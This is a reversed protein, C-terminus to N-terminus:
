SSAVARRRIARKGVRSASASARGSSGMPSRASIVSSSREATSAAPLPVPPLSAAIRASSLLFYPGSARGARAGHALRFSRFIRANTARRPGESRKVGRPRARLTVRRPSAWKTRCDGRFLGHEDGFEVGLGEGVEAEEDGVGAALAGLVDRGALQGREDGRGLLFFPQAGAWERERDELVCGSRAGGGDHDAFAFREGALGQDRAGITDGGRQEGRPKPAAVDDGDGRPARDLRHDREQAHQERPARRQQDLRAIRDEGQAARDRPRACTEDDARAGDIPERQRQDGGAGRSRGAEHARVDTEVLRRTEAGRGRAVHPETVPGEARAGHPEETAVPEPGPLDHEPARGEGGRPIHATHERGERQARLHGHGDGVVAHIQERARGVRPDGHGVQTGAGHGRPSLRALGERGREVGHEGHALGERARDGRRKSRAAVRQELHEMNRRARTDLHEHVDGVRVFRLIREGEPAGRRESGVHEVLLKAGKRHTDRALQAHAAVAESQGPGAGVRLAPHRAREFLAGREIAGALEHAEAVVALHREDAGGVAGHPHRPPADAAFLDLRRQEGVRGDGVRRHERLLRFRTGSLEHGVEDRLLRDGLVLQAIVEGSVQGHREDRVGERLDRADREGGCALQVLGQQPRDRHGDLVDRRAPLLAHELQLVHEARGGDRHGHALLRLREVQEIQHRAVAREGGSLAGVRAELGAHDRRVRGAGLGGAAGELQGRVRGPGEVFREGLRGGCRIALEHEEVAGVGRHGQGVGLQALARQTDEPPQAGFAQDRALAHDQLEGGVALEHEDVPGADEPADHGHGDADRGRVALGVGRHRLELVRPAQQATRQDDGGVGQRRLDARQGLHEARLRETHLRELREGRSRGGHGVEARGVVHGDQQEGRAGGAQGLAHREAIAVDERAGERHAREDIEAVAVHREVPHGEVVHDPQDHVVRAVDDQAGVLHVGRRGEHQFIRQAPQAPELAIAHGDGPRGVERKAEHVLVRRADRLPVPIQGRHADDLVAALGHHRARRPSEQRLECGVPERGRAHEGAPAHALRRRRDGEVAGEAHVARAVVVRKDIEAVGDGAEGHADHVGFIPHQGLARHPAELHLPGADEAAVVLGRLQAALHEGGVAPEVRAVEREQLVPPEREGAALLVDDDDAADVVRAVLDLRDGLLDRPDQRREGRGDGHAPRAAVGVIQRQEEDGLVGALTVGHGEGGLQALGHALGHAEVGLVHDRDALVVHRLSGDALDLARLERARETLPGEVVHHLGEVDRPARLGRQGRPEVFFAENGPHKAARGEAAPPHEHQGFALEGPGEGFGQTALAGLHGDRRAVRGGRRQRARREVVHQDRRRDARPGLRAGRRLQEPSLLAHKERDQVRILGHRPRRRPGRAQEDHGALGEGARGSLGHRVFPAGQGPQQARDGEFCRPEVHTLEVDVVRGARGGSREGVRHRQLERSRGTLALHRQAAARTEDRPDDREGHLERLARRRGDLLPAQIEHGAREAAHARGDGRAQERVEAYVQEGHPAGRQRGAFRPAREGSAAGDRGANVGERAEFARAALDHVFGDVDGVAFRQLAHDGGRLDAEPARERPHDVRRALAVDRAVEGVRVRAEGCRLRACADLEVEAGLERAREREERQHARARGRREDRERRHVAAEAARGKARVGRRRAEEVGEARGFAPVTVRAAHREAPGHPVAQAHVGGCRVRHFLARLLEPIVQDVGVRAVEREERAEGVAAARQEHPEVRRVRLDLAGAGRPREGGLLHADHVLGRAIEGPRQGREGHTIAEARGGVRTKERHIRQREGGVAEDIPVRHDGHGEGALAAGGALAHQRAGVGLARDGCNPLLDQTEGRHAHEVVEELEATVRQARRLHHRAQAVGEAHLQGQRREEFAGGDGLEGRGHVAPSLAVRGDGLDHDRPERVAALPGAQRGRLLAQPEEILELFVACKVVDGARSPQDAGEIGLRERPGEVRDNPTVVDQAGREDGLAAGGGREHVVLRAGEEHALAPHAHGLLRALRRERHLDRRLGLTREGEVDRREQPDLQDLEATLGRLVHQDDRHVVDDGIAPAHTHEHALDDRQVLGEHAARLTRKQGERELVGVVSRVLARQDFRPGVVGLEGVPFLRQAAHRGAELQGRVPRARRGLGVATAFVPEGEIAAEHAGEIAEGLV